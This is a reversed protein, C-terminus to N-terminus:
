IGCSAFGASRPLYSVGSHWRSAAHTRVCRYRYEVMAEGERVEVRAVTQRHQVAAKDLCQVFGIRRQRRAEGGGAVRGIREIALGLGLEQDRERRMELVEDRRQEADALRDARQLRPM